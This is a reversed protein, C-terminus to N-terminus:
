NYGHESEPPLDDLTRGLVIQDFAVGGGKSSLWISNLIFDRNRNLMWLDARVTTWGTAINNDVVTIPVLTGIIDENGGFSLHVSSLLVSFQTTETSLSKFAFQLYRYQGFDPNEVIEFLWGPVVHGGYERIYQPATGGEKTLAISKGGTFADDYKIVFPRGWGEGMMVPGPMLDGDKEDFLVALPRKAVVDPHSAGVTKGHLVLETLRINGIPWSGGGTSVFRIKSASVPTDFMHTHVVADSIMYPGLKWEELAPDWYELRVDRLWSEKYRPDEHFTIGTIELQTNFTDIQFTYRGVWGSDVMQILSWNIWPNELPTTDMDYFKNVDNLWSKPDEHAIPDYFMGVSPQCQRLLNDELNMNPTAEANSIGLIRIVPINEVLKADYKGIIEARPVKSWVKKYNVDYKIFRGNWTAVILSNDSLWRTVGLGKLDEKYLEEGNETNMVFFIGLDDSFAIRKGDLSIAPNRVKDLSNYSWLINEWVNYYRLQSKNTIALYNGDPSLEMADAYTAFTNILVGDKLLYVKGSKTDSYLAIVNSDKAKVLFELTGTNDLVQEWIIKGDAANYCTAKMKDLSVFSNNDLTYLYVRKREDKWWDQRWLEKGNIDWVILGFDGSAAVYSKNEAIAFNNIRDLLVSATSWNTARKALGFTAFKRIPNGNNDMLYLHYGEYTNLDFGQAAIGNDLFIHDYAFHHGIRKSWVIDGTELDFSYINNDFNMANIIATREDKSVKIDKFHIGFRDDVKGFIGVETGNIAANPMVATDVTDATTFSLYRRNVLSINISAEKGSILEAAILKVSNGDVNLPINVQGWFGEGASSFTYDEALINGNVDLLKYSIPIVTNFLRNNSDQVEITFNYAQGFNAQNNARLVVRGMPAPLVAYLRAPTNIFDANITLTDNVNRSLEKNAFVDYVAYGKAHLTMDVTVPTQAAMILGIRWMDGYELDLMQNRIAWIFRGDGNNRESLTIDINECEMVPPIVSFVQRLVKANNRFYNTLRIYAGDDQWASRDHTIKDFSLDLITAGGVLEARCTKDAFIPIGNRRAEEVGRLINDDFEVTQNVLLIAKYQSLTGQKIDETFIFQAPRHAYICSNWAEYMSAFYQGFAHEWKEISMMRTSVPIAIVNENTLQTSWEGYENALNFISRISSLTGSATERVDSKNIVANAPDGSVGVSDAGRALVQFLTTYIFDGTGSDNWLEPHITARKGERKYFDVNNMASQPPQVQEAQYHLDIEKANNFALSPIVHIQRYPGTMVNSLGISERNMIGSFFNDADIIWNMYIASVEDLVSSWKGTEESVKLAENFEVLKEPSIANFAYKKEIWWNAAWNWGRFGPYQKMANTVTTIAYDYQEDTRHDFSTGYPLGADMNLLIAVGEIGQSSYGGIYQQVPLDILLKELPISNNDNELRYKIDALPLDLHRARDFSLLLGPINHGLRDMYMNIGLYNARELINSLYEPTHIPEDSWRYNEMSSSYDGHQIVSFNNRNKVGRGLIIPQEMCSVGDATATITYRGLSLKSLLSQTLGTQVFGDIVPLTSSVVVREFDDKMEVLVSTPLNETQRFKVIIPIREDQGWYVRNNQSMIAANLKSGLKRIEIYDEVIYDNGGYVKIHYLGAVNEPVIVQGNLLPLDVWKSDNFLRIAVKWQPNIIRGGANLNIDIPVKENTTWVYSPYSVNLIEVDAYIARKFAGTNADYVEFLMTRDQRKIFFEDNYKQLSVIKGNRDGFQLTIVGLEVANKDYIYVNNDNYNIIYLTGDQDADFLKPYGDWINGGFSAKEIKNYLTGDFSMAYLNHSPAAIYFLEADVCVKFRLVDRVYSEGTSTLPYATLIRGDESIKLIRDRNQDMGYFNVGDTQVDIPSHFEVTDNNLFDSVTYINEFDKSWLNVSHSFHANASAMIGNINAAVNRTSYVIVSGKRSLGDPSIRQLYNSSYLYVNGDKGVTLGSGPIDFNEDERSIFQELSVSFLLVPFVSFIVLAFLLLKRKM